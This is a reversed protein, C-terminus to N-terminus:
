DRRQTFGDEGSEGFSVFGSLDTTIRMAIGFGVRLQAVGLIHREIFIDPRKELAFNLGVDGIGPDVGGDAVVSIAFDASDAVFDVEVAVEVLVLRRARQFFDFGIDLEQLLIDQGHQVLHGSSGSLVPYLWMTLLFTSSRDQTCLSLCPITPLSVPANPLLAASTYLEDLNHRNGVQQYEHLLHFWLKQSLHGQRTENPASYAQVRM